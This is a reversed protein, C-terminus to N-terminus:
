NINRQTPYAFSIGTEAFRAVITRNISDVTEGYQKPQPDVVFYTVEYELAYTGLRTLLCAVYNTQPQSRVIQEILTAVKAINDPATDYAVYLKFQVRREPMRGLNRLRSKLMDANSVIIQEGSVSRLRTSKLGIHEVVGEYDELKVWDGVVFPKDLTISLSGLLDSLMTQVALAVAIGGIGLGALLASINVGLNDLALLAVVAWVLVQVCFMLVNLSGGVAPDRMSERQGLLHRAAAVLWLGVQLWVGLVIVVDFFHDVAAPLKLIKEALYFAVVLRVVRSTSGLLGIIFQVVQSGQSTSTWSRQLKQIQQRLIPLGIFAIAFALAAWGWQALSNGLYRQGLLEHLETMIM